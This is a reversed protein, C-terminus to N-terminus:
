IQEGNEDISTIIFKKAAIKDGLVYDGSDVKESVAKSLHRPPRPTPVTVNSGAILNFNMYFTNIVRGSSITPPTM